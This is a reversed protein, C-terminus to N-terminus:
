AGDTPSDTDGTAARRKKQIHYATLAASAVMDLSPRHQGDKTQYVGPTLAGALAVADGDGLAMLADQTSHSFAIVSCFMSEGNGAAVRVMATTYTSGNKGTGQKPSGYVKGSILADIM